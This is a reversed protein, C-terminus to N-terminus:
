GAKGPKRKPLEQAGFNWEEPTYALLMGVVRVSDPGFEDELADWIMKQRELDSKGKFSTSVINGVLRTGVKELMFEPDKLRLRDSL